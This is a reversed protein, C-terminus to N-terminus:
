SEWWVREIVYQMAGKSVGKLKLEVLVKEIDGLTLVVWQSDKEYATVPILSDEVGDTVVPYPIRHPETYATVAREVLNDLPLYETGTERWQIPSDEVGGSM